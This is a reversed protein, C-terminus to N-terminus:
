PAARQRQNTPSPTRVTLRALRSMPSTPGGRGLEPSHNSRPEIGRYMWELRGDVDILFQDEAEQLKEEVSKLARRTVAALGSAPQGATPTQYGLINSTAIDELAATVQQRRTPVIAWQWANEAAAPPAVWSLAQDSWDGITDFAQGM